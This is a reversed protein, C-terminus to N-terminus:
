YNRATRGGGCVLVFKGQQKLITAKLRQLFVTDIADPAILSGGVSLVTIEM